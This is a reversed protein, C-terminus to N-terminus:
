LLWAGLATTGVVGFGLIMQRVGLGRAPRPPRMLTLRQVVVLAVIAVVQWVNVGSTTPSPRNVPELRRARERASRSGRQRV